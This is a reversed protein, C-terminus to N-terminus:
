FSKLTTSIWNSRDCLWHRNCTLTQWQLLLVAAVLPWHNMVQVALHLINQQERTTATGDEYITHVRVKFIPCFTGFRRCMFNLHFLANRFNPAYFESLVTRESVEACLIWISCLTGFSRCMSNLHFLANRFKPVYFESAPSIVWFFVYLLTHPTTREWAFGASADDHKSSSSCLCKCKVFHFTGRTKRNFHKLHKSAWLNSFTQPTIISVSISLNRVLQLLNLQTWLTM